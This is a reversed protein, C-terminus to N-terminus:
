QSQSFQAAVVAFPAGARLQQIVTDAFHQTDAAKAPDDIPLFIESVRYEPQGTQAKELAQQKAIDADSIETKDGLEDRLVRTWGIQVRIQDYLTSLAVGESGLKQRLAGTPM